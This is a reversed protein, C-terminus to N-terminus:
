EFDEILKSNFPIEGNPKCSQGGFGLLKTLLFINRIETIENDEGLVDGAINNEPAVKAIKKVGEGIKIFATDGAVDGEARTIVAKM